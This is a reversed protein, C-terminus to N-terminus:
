WVKDKYPTDSFGRERCRAVLRDLSSRWMKKFWSANGFWAVLIPSIAYYVKIFARGHLSMALDYDRFRRLTWVQPCDYSGYVATAVYCGGTKTAPADKSANKTVPADKSANEATWGLKGTFKELEARCEERGLNTFEAYADAAADLGRGDMNLDWWVCTFEGSSYALNKPPEPIDYSGPSYENINSAYRLFDNFGLNHCDTPCLEILSKWFKIATDRGYKHKEDKLDYTDELERPLSSLLWYADFQQGFTDQSTALREAESKKASVYVPWAFDFSLRAIEISTLEDHRSIQPMLRLESFYTMLASTLNELAEESTAVTCSSAKFYEAFAHAEWNDPQLEVLRSYYKAANEKNGEQKARTALATLNEIEGSNDIEVLLKKAAEPEYKTGCSQCVYYEGQKVVDSGGCMECKIAKM